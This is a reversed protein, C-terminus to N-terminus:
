PPTWDYGDVRWAILLWVWQLAIAAVVVAVRYLRSRPAAIAGVLPFLPVLLRFTSSQPFFVALLYLAYSALWLRIDIGLAAVPRSVLAMAFAVVLVVVAAWGVPRGFWWEFGQFWPTFPVLHQYGIYASRWALETDTYAAIDGTVFWAVAPWALGVVGSVTVAAILAPAEGRRFPERTRTAIRVILHLGLLLAFALASPRTFGMVVIVPVLVGYRRRVLLLLATSLLLLHLSEAYAVQFMPALPAACFLVVGFLATNADLHTRLLRYTVLAAGAGALVSVTVAAAAWEAGTLVMLARVVLPYVPMFAWANEGTHGDATVPLLSPYGSVAVINYWRGDWMSAFDVYRPSAGTWANQDQNAALVVMM